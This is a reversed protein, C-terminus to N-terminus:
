RAGESPLTEEREGSAFDLVLRHGAHAIEYRSSGHATHCYPNDFRPFNTLPVDRNAVRLPGEWGFSVEGLGPAVYRVNLERSEIPAAAIGETWAMFEGDVARRGLQCIWVNRGGNAVLGEGAIGMGDTWEVPARSWLALYGDGKRAFTWHSRSIVEDFAARRLVAHTRRALPEESPGPSPTANGAADAPIVTKPGPPQQEPIDYFAVLVNKFQAVRPYRGQWYKSSSGPNFTFVSADAGLTAQWIQQQYGPAGKRYDQASSLQYDPTRYTIKDVRQLSSRDLDPVPSGRAELARYTGLLAVAYPRIVVGYRHLTDKWRDTVRLSAELNSITRFKGGENLLWFDDPNEFRLGLSPGDEILLSQRERNILEAPQDRAIRVITYPVRYRQATAFAVAADNGGPRGYAWALYQLPATPEVSSRGRARALYSRGHSTAYVGKFSDVAMDFFMVDLLMAARRAIEEESALEALALLATMTVPYYTPSDWESFGVKAKAEIWRLIRRRALERHEAGTKGNNAFTAGPFVQGALYEAAHYTIQHNESWMSLLDRGPEDVWYKFDLLGARIETRLEQSLLPSATAYLRLLTIAEFDATDIRQRLRLLARRVVAEDIPGRNLAVRALQAALGVRRSEM